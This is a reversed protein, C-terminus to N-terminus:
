PDYHQLSILVYENLYPGSVEWFASCELSVFIGYGSQYEVQCFMAYQNDHLTDDARSTDDNNAGGRQM